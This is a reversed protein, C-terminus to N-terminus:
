SIRASAYITVTATWAAACCLSRIPARPTGGDASTPDSRSTQIDNTAFVRVLTSGLGKAFRELEDTNTVPEFPQIEVRGKGAESVDKSISHRMAITVIAAIAAVVAAVALLYRRKSPRKPTVSREVQVRSIDGLLRRLSELLNEFARSSADGNWDSFDISQVQRFGLPPQVRGVRLPILKKQDHAQQAEDRVWDSDISANSWLVIAVRAEELQRDIERRFDAGGHIQRDWWVSFGAHSLAAAIQDVIALDESVYSIFVDAM